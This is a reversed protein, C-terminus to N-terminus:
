RLRTTAEFRRYNAYESVCTTVLARGDRHSAYREVFRTPVWVDLRADHSYTTSLVAHIGDHSLEIRTRLVRGTGADVDVEGRSFVPRGRTDRVLTPRGRENFAITAVRRDSPAAEPRIRTSFRFDRRRPESFPMLALFPDNFNRVVPGLNYRANLAFVARAISSIESERMLATLDPRVTVPEDDVFAIDHVVSWHRETSLYTLFMEGRTTRREIPDDPREAVAVRQESTEDAILYRLSSEYDAVYAFARELPSPAFAVTGPPVTLWSAAFCAIVLASRPDITM